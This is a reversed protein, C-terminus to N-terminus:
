ERKLMKILDQKHVNGAIDILSYLYTGDTVILYKDTSTEAYWGSYEDFQIEEKEFNETSYHAKLIPLYQDYFIRDGQDNIYVIDYELEFKEESEIYYGEPIWNPTYYDEIVSLSSGFDNYDVDIESHNEKDEVQISRIHSRVAAYATGGLVGVIIVAIILCAVKSICWHGIHVFKKDREKQKQRAVEKCKELFGSEEIERLMEDVEKEEEESLSVDGYYLKVAEKLTIGEDNKMGGGETYKVISDTYKKM